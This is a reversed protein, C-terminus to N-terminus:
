YCVCMSACMRTLKLGAKAIHIWLYHLSLSFFFFMQHKRNKTKKLTLILHHSWHSKELFHWKRLHDMGTNSLPFFQLGVSRLNWSSFFSAFQPHCQPAALSVLNHWALQALCTEALLKSEAYLYSQLLSARHIGLIHFFTWDASKGQIVGSFEYQLSAM